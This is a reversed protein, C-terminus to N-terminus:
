YRIESPEEACSPNINASIALLETINASNNDCSATSISIWNQALQTVHHMSGEIMNKKLLQALKVKAKGNFKELKDRACWLSFLINFKSFKIQILM